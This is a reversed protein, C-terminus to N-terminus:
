GRSGVVDFADPDYQHKEAYAATQPAKFFHRCVITTGCIVGAIAVMGNILWLRELPGGSETAVLSVAMAAIPVGAGIFVGIRAPNWWPEDKPLTRGLELARMRETHELMRAREATKFAIATPAIVIPIFLALIPILLPDM